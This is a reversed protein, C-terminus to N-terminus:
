DGSQRRTILALVVDGSSHSQREVAVIADDVPGGTHAGVLERALDIVSDVETPPPGEHRLLHGALVGRLHKAHHSVTSRKGGQDRVVMISVRTASSPPRWAALYASSRCDILLQGASEAALVSTLHPRWWTGLPGTSPLSVGMSLRYAPIRDTPDLVGWLGSIIRVSSRLRAPAVADLRAAAYLIGSYVQGAERAPAHDLSLNAAVDNTLSAGVKLISLADPHASVASLEQLIQARPAHLAPHSLEDLQFPKGSRPPTKGESPPLLILM